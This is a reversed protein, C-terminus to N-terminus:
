IQSSTQFVSKWYKTESSPPPRPPRLQISRVHTEYWEMGYWVIGYVMRYWEMGYWVIGYVMPWIGYVMYWIGYVM